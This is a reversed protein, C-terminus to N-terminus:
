AGPARGLLAAAAAIVTAPDARVLHGGTFRPDGTVEVHDPPPAFAAADADFAFEVEALVLGTLPGDFVDYGLPPASRREKTLVVAPLAELVAHEAPSLYITTLVGWPHGPLKQTLKLRTTGDDLDVTRRLRLRTGDVYRDTIARRTTVRSDDPPGAVLFRREREPRAYASPPSPM